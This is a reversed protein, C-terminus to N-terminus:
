IFSSGLVLVSMVAAAVLALRGVKASRAAPNSPGFNDPFANLQSNGVVRFVASSYPLPQGDRICPVQGKSNSLLPDLDDGVIRLQYRGTQLSPVIWEYLSVGKSLNTAIPNSYWTDAKVTIQNLSSAATGILAYYLAVSRNPYRNTDVERYTWNVLLRNGVAVISSINPSTIFFYGPTGACGDTGTGIESVGSFDACGFIPDCNTLNFTSQAHTVTTLLGLQLALVCVVATATRSPSSRRVM